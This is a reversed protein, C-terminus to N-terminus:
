PPLPFSPLLQEALLAEVVECQPLGVVNSYSGEIRAVAFAGIGQVAYAGAKDRGEGTAVYAAIEDDSLARFTVSTSVTRARSRAGDASAVAFRTAVVHSRGSLSRVMATADRDTAPKGLVEGDLIVTTDAALVAGFRHGDGQRALDDLAARLKTEVVREVYREPGEGAHVAEDVSPPRVATPIGLAALLDRRRPSGSALLLPTAVRIM